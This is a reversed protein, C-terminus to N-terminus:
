ASPLTSIFKGVVDIIAGECKWGAEEPLQYIPDATTVIIMDLNEM